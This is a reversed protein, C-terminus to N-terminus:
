CGALFREIDDLTALHGSDKQEDHGFVSTGDLNRLEFGGAQKATNSRKGGKSLKLKLNAAARRLNAQRLREDRTMAATMCRYVVM